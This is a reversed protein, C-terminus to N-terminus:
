IDKSSFSLIAINAMFLSLGLGSIVYLTIMWWRTWIPKDFSYKDDYTSGENREPPPNGPESESNDKEDLKNKDSDNSDLSDGDTDKDNEESPAQSINQFNDSDSQDTVNPNDPNENSNDIEESTSNESDTNNDQPQKDESLGDLPTTELDDEEFDIDDTQSKNTDVSDDVIQDDASEDDSLDDLGVSQDGFPEDSSTEDDTNLVTRLFEELNKDNDDPSPNTESDEVKGADEDKLTAEEEESHDKKENTNLDEKPESNILESDDGNTTAVDEHTENTKDQASYGDLQDSSRLELDNDIIEDQEIKDQNPDDVSNQAVIVPEKEDTLFDSPKPEPLFASDDEELLQEILESKDQEELEIKFQEKNLQFTLTILESFNKAGITEMKEYLDYAHRYSSAWDDTSEIEFNGFLKSLEDNPLNVIEKYSSFEYTLGKDSDQDNAFEDSLANGTQDKNIQNYAAKKVIEDVKLLSLQFITEIMTECGIMSNENLSYLASSDLPSVQYLSTLYDTPQITKQDLDTEEYDLALFINKVFEPVEFRFGISKESSNTILLYIEPFDMPNKDNKRIWVRAFPYAYPDNFSPKLCDPSIDWNKSIAPNYNSPTEISGPGQDLDLQPSPNQNSPADTSETLSDIGAGSPDNPTEISGPGQDLDLQPSPTQQVPSVPEEPNISQSREYASAGESLFNTTSIGGVITKPNDQFILSVNKNNKSYTKRILNILLLWVKLNKKL